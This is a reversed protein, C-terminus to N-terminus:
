NLRRFRKIRTNWIETVKEICEDTSIYRSPIGMFSQTSGETMVPTMCHCECCEIHVRNHGVLDRQVIKAEGDCFPCSKINSM